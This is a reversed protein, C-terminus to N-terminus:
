RVTEALASSRERALLRRYVDLTGQVMAKFGYAAARERAARGRHARRDPDRMLRQIAEAVCRENDPPVFDAAGNWLERFTPIDSLVLACGAQAAELVALGFPEYYAASVFIPCAELYSAIDLASLMGLPRVHDLAIMAGNPGHLPGAAFVPITLRAAARDLTRVNKGKDWLRGATLAFPEPARLPRKDHVWASRGNHVVYPIASLNYAEVTAMAFSHSPAMLADAMRYGRRVLEMRWRFDEPMPGSRVAQWWTAVCSHCM